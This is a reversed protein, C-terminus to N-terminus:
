TTSCKEDVTGYAKVRSFGYVLTGNTIAINCVRDMSRNKMMGHSSELEQEKLLLVGKESMNKQNETYMQVKYDLLDEMAMRTSKPGLWGNKWPEIPDIKPIEDVIIEMSRQILAHRSSAAIIAQFIDKGGLDVSTIFDYGRSILDLISFRLELDNDLYVGGHIYLQALRCADSKFMGPTQNSQFWALTHNSKAFTPIQKMKELCSTDDDQIFTYNPFLFLNNEVNKQILLPENHLGSKTNIIFNPPIHTIKTKPSIDTKKKEVTNNDTYLYLYLSCFATVILLVGMKKNKTRNSNLKKNEMSTQQIASHNGSLVGWNLRRRLM